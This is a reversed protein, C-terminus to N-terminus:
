LRLARVHGRGVEGKKVLEVLGFTPPIHALAGKTGWDPAGPGTSWGASTTKPWLKAPVELEAGRVMARDLNQNMQIRATDGDVVLTTDGALTANAQVIADHWLSAFAASQVVLVDSGPRLMWTAAQEATYLYEPKLDANPVLM